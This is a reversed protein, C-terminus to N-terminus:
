LAAPSCTLTLAAAEARLKCFPCHRVSEPTTSLVCCVCHGDPLTMRTGSVAEMGISDLCRPDDIPRLSGSVGNKRDLSEGRSACGDEPFNLCYLDSKSEFSEVPLGLAVGLFSCRFHLNLQSFVERPLIKKSDKSQGIFDWTMRNLAEESKRFLGRKILDDFEKMITESTRCYIEALKAVEARKCPNKALEQLYTKLGADYFEEPEVKITM